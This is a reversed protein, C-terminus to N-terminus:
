LISHIGGICSEPFNEDYLSYEKKCEKKREIVSVFKEYYLHLEHLFMVYCNM